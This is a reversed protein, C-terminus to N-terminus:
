PQNLAQLFEMEFRQADVTKAFRLPFGDSMVRTLGSSPGEATYVKVPGERIMGLSEDALVAAALPDWFYYGGSAIFDLQDSLVQYVFEAEPTNHNAQLRRYFDLNVPAHNTADLPILTVPAGSAFVRQAALPDIYINWEAVQNEIGAGSFGVNGLVELAGGMIYVQEIKETIAPEDQFAAALNTLPGLALLTIKEPSGKLTDILLEDAEQGAAPNSGEPLELGQMSDARERWDDPFIHKGELPTESGCAVPIGSEGALKVLGLANRVGPACHTEGTGAVTIAVIRIEPRQLLYLIAMWDDPAMDTDIVVPRPKESAPLPEFSIAAAKGSSNSLYALTIGSIWVVMLAATLISYRWRHAPQLSVQWLGRRLMSYILALPLTVLLFIPLLIGSLRAWPSDGLLASAIVSLPMLVLALVVARTQSREELTARRRYRYLQSAVGLLVGALLTFIGALWIWEAQALSLMMTTLLVLVALGVLLSVWRIWRPAFSGDPFIYYFLLLGVLGLVTVLASAYTLIADWPQPLPLAAGAQGTLLTQPILVLLLATLLGIGTSRSKRLGVEVFVLVAALWFVTVALYRLSWILIAYVQYPLLAKVGPYSSLVQWDTYMGRISQPITAILVLAALTGLIFCAIRALRLFSVKRPSVLTTSSM